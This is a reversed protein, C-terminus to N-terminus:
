HQALRLVGTPFARAYRALNPVDIWLFTRRNM